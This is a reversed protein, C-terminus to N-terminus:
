EDAMGRTLSQTITAYCTDTTGDANVYHITASKTRTMTTGSVALSEATFTATTTTAVASADPDCMHNQYALSATNGSVNLYFACDGDNVDELVLDAQASAPAAAITMSETGGQAQGSANGSVCTQSFQGAVREWEGIFLTLDKGSADGGTAQSGGESLDGGDLLGTAADADSSSTAPTTGADKGEGGGSSGASSSSCGGLAGVASALVGIVLLKYLARDRERRKTTVLCVRAIM